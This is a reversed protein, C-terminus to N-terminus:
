GKEKLFLHNLHNLPEAYISLASKQVPNSVDLHNLPEAPEVLRTRSFLKRNTRNAESGRSTDLSEHPFHAAEVQMTATSMGLAEGAIM